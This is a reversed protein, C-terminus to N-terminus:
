DRLRVVIGIDKDLSDDSTKQAEGDFDLRIANIDNVSNLHEIPLKIYGTKKEGAGIGDDFGDYYAEIAVEDLNSFIANEEGLDIEINKKAIVTMYITAFGRIKKTAEDDEFRYKKPKTTKFIKVKTIKITAGKWETYKYNPKYEKKAEVPFKEDDYIYTGIKNVKNETNSTTLNKNFDYGAKCGLCIIIIFLWVWWKKYWPQVQIYSDGNSDKNYDM